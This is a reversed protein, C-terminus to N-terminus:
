AQVGSLDCTQLAARTMMEGMAVVIKRPGSFPDRAHAMLMNDLLLVDGARWAFRLACREYLEGLLSVLEDELPEGDGYVVNRPLRGDGVLNLLDDRLANELFAPHHLQIQNFLVAEGTEPHRVIAACRSSLQPSGDALWRCQMGAEACQREVEDRRDTHFFERWGVDIRDIFTRVYSLGRRELAERWHAPLAALLERGDALPTAGGESIRECYFMQKRPWSTLHSSENHFLIMRDQPYPTSHYIRQGQQERPLDGYDGHLSPVLAQAMQEFQAASRVGFGRFLLAGHRRLLAYLPERLSTAWAVPDLDPEMAEILQPAHLRGAVLASMRARPLPGNVAGPPASPRLAARGLGALKNRTPARREPLPTEPANVLQELLDAYDSALREVTASDFLDCDHLWEMKLRDADAQIFIALDFKTSRQPLPLESVQVGPLQLEGPPANQMVFLSQVLLPGGGPARQLRLAEVLRDFPLSQHAYAALLQEHVQQLLAMFSSSPAIRSRLPLVNVFFGVLADLAAHERGAVDIGVLLDRSGSARLLLAFYAALLVAYPTTGVRCALARVGAVRGSDLVLNVAEARGSARTPRPRDRPLALEPPVGQLQAQWWAVCTQERGSDLRQQQWEAFDAYRLPLPALRPARAEIAARYLESLERMLVGVSWGDGAIHHLALVLVAADTEVQLLRARLLPASGLDFAGDATESSLEALRSQREGFSLARLDIQDFPLRAEAEIRMRPIGDHEEFRTRLAEHRDVLAQLAAVLVPTDLAGQLMLAAAMNYAGGGGLRDVLWLRIQAPALRLASAPDVSPWPCAAQPAAQELQASLGQAYHKLSTSELLTRLSAEVGYRERVRAIVRMAALSDGGNALWGLQPAPLAHGLVDGWIAALDAALGTLPGAADAGGADDAAGATAPSSTAAYLPQARADIVEGPLQDEFAAFVALSADQWGRRCASRQLKGSSTKPMAGPQLLLVLAPAEQCHEVVATAVARALTAAPMTKQTARSTELALGIRERGGQPWAFAVVRGGRVGPLHEVAREIDQPYLNRGRVVILDKLRGSVHVAGDHIFGLDGTRLWRTGARWVFTEDSAQPNNWYGRALSPGSFCIEGIRDEGLEHGDDPDTIAIRHGSAAGGCGIQSAGGALAQVHGQALAQPDAELTRLGQGAPTASVFVCTEALGYCPVLAQPNLGAAAFKRAFGRLTEARIPEAGCFAVQWRRLDLQEVAADPVRELVLRYAFEPGGSVSAGYTSIAQLWRLPQELFRRTPLLTGPTGVFLPLLLGSILGMDHYLPLWSFSGFDPQIAFGERCAQLNAMLQAHELQVGKPLATSGSTYQLFATAQGLRAPARWDEAAQADVRDVCLSQVGGREVLLATLGAVDEQVATETLLWRPTADAAIALPRDLHQRRRSEPPYAPVAIIGAYLCGLFATAYHVSTPFLLLARDGPSARSQLQAALARARRDLEAYDLEVVADGDIFRLALQRPTALARAQLLSVLDRHERADLTM